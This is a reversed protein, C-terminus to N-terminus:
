NRQIVCRMTQFPRKQIIARNGVGEKFIQYEVGDIVIKSCNRFYNEYKDECLIEKSGINQLGYQKWVLSEPSIEGRHPSQSDSVRM